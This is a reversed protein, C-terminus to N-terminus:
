NIKLVSSVSNFTKESEDWVTVAFCPAANYQDCAAGSKPMIVLVQENGIVSFPKGGRGKYSVDDVIIYVECGSSGCWYSAGVNPCSFNAFPVTAQKGENSIKIEYLNGNPLLLESAKSDIDDTQVGEQAKLCEVSYEATIRQITNENSTALVYMPFLLLTLMLLFTRM